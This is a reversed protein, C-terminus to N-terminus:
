MEGKVRKLGENENQLQSIRTEYESFKRGLDEFELHFKKRLNENEQNLKINNQETVQLVRKLENNERLLNELDMKVSEITSEYSRYKGTVEM